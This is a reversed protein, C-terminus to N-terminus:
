REVLAIAFILIITYLGIVVGLNLSLFGIVTFALTPLPMLALGLSLRTPVTAFLIVMTLLVVLILAERGFENIATFNRVYVSGLFHNVGSKNIYADARYGTNNSLIITATLTSTAGTSCTINQLTLTPTAQTLPYNYVKLCAGNALGEADAYYYTFRRSANTYYLNYSISKYDHYVGGIESGLNIAIQYTTSTIRTRTVTKKLESLYYVAFTYYEGNLQMNVSCKGEFNTSCIEQLIDTNTSLDYRSTYVQANEVAEGYEDIITVTVNTYNSNALLYLNLNNFTRNVLTFYYFHLPYGTSYYRLTYSSPLLFPTLLTGNTTTYNASMATSIVELVTTHNSLIQKSQSDRFTINFTTTQLLSFNVQHFSGNFTINQYALAYGDADLTISYTGNLIDFSAVGSTVSQSDSHTIDTNLRVISATFTTVTTGYSKATVNVKHETVNVRFYTSSLNTLTFQSTNTWFVGTTTLTYTGSDLFMEATSNTTSVTKNPVSATFTTYQQGNFRNYTEITIQAQRLLAVTSTQTGNLRIEFTRSFYQNAMVTVNYTSNLSANPFSLVGNTTSNFVSFTSNSLTINFSNITNGAFYESRATFNVDQLTPNIPTSSYYGIRVYRQNTNVNAGTNGTRYQVKGPTGNTGFGRGYLSNISGNNVIVDYTNNSMYIRYEIQYYTGVTYAFLSTTVIDTVSFSGNAKFGAGILTVDAASLINQNTIGTLTSLNFMTVVGFTGNSSTQNPFAHTAEIIGDSLHVINLNRNNIQVDNTGTGGSLEYWGNGLTTSDARDFIDTFLTGDTDYAFASHITILLFLFLYFAVILKAPLTDEKPKQM